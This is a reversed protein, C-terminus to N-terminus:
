AAGDPAERLVGAAAEVAERTGALALVDGPRLVERGNPLQAHGDPGTIALVTAGTRSRLNLDILTRGVAADGPAIRVGGPVHAGTAPRADVRPGAAAHRRLSDFLIEAGSRLEGQLDSAGRWVQAALALLLLSFVLAGGFPPLFPQTAAVVPLGVALVVAMRIIAVLTPRRAPTRTSTGDEDVAEALVDGLRGGARVLSVCVPAAVSVALATVTWRAAEGGLGLLDATKSAAAPGFLSHSVSIMVLVIADICAIRLTARIRAKRGDSPPASRIEELWSAYLATLTQLPAPLTRDVRDAVRDAARIFAPTTFATIASVAIAVPYLFPRVAGLTLGLGALIFSFEGIQALSMGAAVSSRTGNGVLFAGSSVAIVKGVLVVATLALVSVWNEAILAPDILMGVAVFFIAAFVDRVPRVQQEIDHGHGSEAVLMGALFAGLAVSYGLVQSAHAVAFCLGVAAVTTTEPRGLAVIARFLRPVVLLGVVLLGTLAAGLRLGATGLDAFTPERGSAFITLGAMMLIALLDEVILVGLVVDRRRGQVRQEEFAKAIISTSSISVIAGTFLCELPTWGFARGVLYGLCAMVSVEIVAIVGGTPAVEALKSMRFELGISFMLLIVGLEALAEVIAHDAILPIPVHPGVILGALIYGLVVPQRIRQFVVTALAAVCLVLSLNVLFDHATM